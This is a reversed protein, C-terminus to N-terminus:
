SYLGGSIHTIEPTKKPKFLSVLSMPWVFCWDESSYLIPACNALLTAAPMGKPWLEHHLKYLM